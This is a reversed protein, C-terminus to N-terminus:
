TQLSLASAFLPNSAPPHPRAPRPSSFSSPLFGEDAQGTHEAVPASRPIARVRAALCVQAVRQQELLALEQQRQQEQLQHLRQEEQM